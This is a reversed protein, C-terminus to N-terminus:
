PEARCRKGSALELVAVYSPAPATLALEVIADFPGPGVDVGKGSIYDQPARQAALWVVAETGARGHVQYAIDFGRSSTRQEHLKTVRLECTEPGIQGGACGVLTAITAAARMRALIRM